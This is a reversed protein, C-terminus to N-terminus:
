KEYDEGELLSTGIVELIDQYDNGYCKNNLLFQYTKKNILITKDSFNFYFPIKEHYHFYLYEFKEDTLYDIYILNNM